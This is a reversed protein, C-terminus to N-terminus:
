EEDAFFQRLLEDDSDGGTAKLRALGAMLEGYAGANFEEGELAKALMVRVGATAAEEMTLDPKAAAAAVLGMVGDQEQPACHHLALGHPRGEVRELLLRCVPCQGLATM